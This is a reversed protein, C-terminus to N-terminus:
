RIEQSMSEDHPTCYSMTNSKFTTISKPSTMIHSIAKKSLLVYRLLAWWQTHKHHWLPLFQGNPKTKSNLNKKVKQNNEKKQNGKQKEKDHKLRATYWQLYPIFNAKDEESCLRLLM